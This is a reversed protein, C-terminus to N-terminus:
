EFSVIGYNIKEMEYKFPLYWEAIWEGNRFVFSLHRKNLNEPTFIELNDGENPQYDFDFCNKSNLDILMRENTLDESLVKDPMYGMGDMTYKSPGLCKELTWTFENRKKNKSKRSNKHHVIKDMTAPFCTCLKIEKETKCM